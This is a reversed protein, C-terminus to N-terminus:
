DTRRVGKHRSQSQRPGTGAIPSRLRGARGTRWQHPQGPGPRPRIISLRRRRWPHGIGPLGGPRHPQPDGGGNSSRRHSEGNGGGAGGSSELAWRVADEHQKTSHPEVLQAAFFFEIWSRYDTLMVHRNLLDWGQPDEPVEEWHAFAEAYHPQIPAILPIEPGIAVWGNVRLPHENILRLIWGNAHCHGVAIASETDTADLVATLDDVILDDTFLAPDTVRDARGNGRGDLTVVRFHRALHPIQTKWMRSHTISFSPVLFLTPGDNEYLEYFIRVGARDIHGDRDPYRARM